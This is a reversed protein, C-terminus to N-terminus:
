AWTASSTASIADQFTLRNVMEQANFRMDHALGARLRRAAPPLLVVRHRVFLTFMVYAIPTALYINLEKKAIAIANKMRHRDPRPSSSSSRKSALSRSGDSWRRYRRRRPRKCAPWRTAAVIKGQAIMLVRQCTAVVEPLIHTSLIITHKGALSKILEACGLLDFRRM